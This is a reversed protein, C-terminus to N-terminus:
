ESKLDSMVVRQLFILCRFLAQVCLLRYIQKVIVKRAKFNCALIFVCLLVATSVKVVSSIENDIHKECDIYNALKKM